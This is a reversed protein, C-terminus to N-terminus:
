ISFQSRNKSNEIVKQVESTKALFIKASWENTECLSLKTCFFM